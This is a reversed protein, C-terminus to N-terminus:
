MHAIRGNRDDVDERRLRLVEGPGPIVLIAVGAGALTEAAPSGAVVLLHEFGMDGDMADPPEADEDFVAIYLVSVVSDNGGDSKPNVPKGDLGIRVRLCTPDSVMSIDIPM